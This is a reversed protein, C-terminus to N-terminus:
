EDRDLGSLAIEVHSQPAPRQRPSWGPQQTDSQPRETEDLWGEGNLWTAGHKTYQPNEGSRTAAYRMAGVLLTDVSVSAQRARDYAKRAAGKSIRRPYQLWWAEFDATYDRKPMKGEGGSAARPFLDESPLEPAVPEPGPEADAPGQFAPRYRCSHGRGQSAIVTLHGAAELQDSLGRVGRVTMRMETALTVQSPWADGTSRNFHKSIRYALSFGAATVAPDAIVQDLWKFQRRTFNDSL